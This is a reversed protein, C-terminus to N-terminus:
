KTKILKKFEKEGIEELFIKRGSVFYTKDITEYLTIFVGKYNVIHTSKVQM